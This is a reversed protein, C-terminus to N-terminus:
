GLARVWDALDQEKVMGLKTHLQAGNRDFVVSFPLAGTANGLSRALEVGNLGALGIAFGMPQRTLFERVPTPSDVALGIVHWGRARHQAQFQDLLPMETVCPPCWTAWFNVLLPKGRFNALVLEGGDPQDFRLSWLDAAGTPAINGNGAPRSRWWSGGLGAAMAAAAVGGMLLSRRNM